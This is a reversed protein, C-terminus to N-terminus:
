MGPVAVGAAKAIGAAGAIGAAWKVAKQMRETKEQQAEARGVYGLIEKFTDKSLDGDKVRSRLAAAYKTFAEAQQKPSGSALSDAMELESRMRIKEADASAARNRSIKSAEGLESVQRAKDAETQFTREAGAHVQPFREGRPRIDSGQLRKLAGAGQTDNAGGRIKEMLYNEYMKDVQAKAQVRVKGTVDKGGAIADELMQVNQSNSFVAQPFKEKPFKAYADKGIGGVTDTLVSGIRTNLTELPVSLKRYIESAQRHKPIAASLQADLKKYADMALNRVDSGYGEMPSSYAIEQVYKKAEILDRASLGDAEPAKFPKGTVDVIGPAGPPKPSGKMAAVIKSLKANKDPINELHPLVAEISALAPKVDIKKGSADFAAVAQDSKEYAVKAGESRTKSALNIASSYANGVTEGQQGLHPRSGPASSADLDRQLAVRLDDYSGAEALHSSQEAASRGEAGQLASKTATMAENRATIAPVGRLSEMPAKLTKGLSGVAKVGAKAIGPGVAWPLNATAMDAATAVGGAVEPSAGRATLAKQTKDGAWKGLAETAEGAKELGVVAPAMIGYTGFKKGAELAAGGWDFGPPKPGAAAPPPTVAPAAPSKVAREKEARLRFEFEENESAPM